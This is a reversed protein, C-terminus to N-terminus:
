PIYLSSETELARVFDEAPAHLEPVPAGLANRHGWFAAVPADFMSRRNPRALEEPIRIEDYTEGGLSCLEQLSQSRLVLERWWVGSGRSVLVLRAPKPVAEAHRVLQDALWLFDEQRSEAYDVILMLAAADRSGLILRELASESLEHGAGRIGRPLFGSLWRHARTLEDAIEILARTKGLGAPAHV